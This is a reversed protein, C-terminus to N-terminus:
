VPFPLLFLPLIGSVADKYLDIVGNGKFSSLIFCAAISESSLCASKVNSLRSVESAAQDCWYIYIYINFM